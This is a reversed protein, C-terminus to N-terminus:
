KVGGAAAMRRVWSDFTQVRFAKAGNIDDGQNAVVIRGNWQMPLLGTGSGAGPVGTSYPVYLQTFTETGSIDVGVIAAASTSAVAADAFSGIYFGDASKYHAQGIAVQTFNSIFQGDSIDIEAELTVTATADYIRVFINGTGDSARYINCAGDASPNSWVPATPSTVSPADDGINVLTGVQNISGLFYTDLAIDYAMVYALGSTDLMQGVWNDASADINAPTLGGATWSNTTIENGSSDFYQLPNTASSPLKFSDGDNDFGGVMRGRSPTSIPQTTPPAARYTSDAILNPYVGTSTASDIVGSAGVSNSAFTNFPM